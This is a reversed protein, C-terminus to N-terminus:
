RPTEPEQLSFVYGVGRITHILRSAGGRELKTRLFRIYVQLLNDEQLTDDGWVDRLIRRKELVEEAHAMFYALLDFERLSLPEVITDRRLERKMVDVEVGEYTLLQTPQARSRRLVADIRAELESVDFPKPLYDDAGSQLGAVRDRVSDHGTLIIIPTQGGEARFQRAFERGDGDPLELDLLILDFRTGGALAGRAGNITSYQRFKACRPGLGCRVIDVVRSDDEVLMLKLDPRPM